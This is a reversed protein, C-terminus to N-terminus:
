LCQQDTVCILIQSSYKINSGDVHGSRAGSQDTDRVIHVRGPSKDSCIFTKFHLLGGGAGSLM